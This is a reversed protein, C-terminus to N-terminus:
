NPIFSTDMGCTNSVCGPVAEPSKDVCETSSRHHTYRESMLYGSYELTWTSTCSLRAPIMIVSARTSSHCVACPVNHQFVSRLPQNCGMEYEVGHLELNMTNHIILFVSITVAGERIHLTGKHTFHTGAARGAYVLDTGTVNPCTTRGWRIYAAGGSRPGPPGQAGLNGKVGKGGNKGDRGPLGRPGPEGDRGDRGDRGQLINTCPPPTTDGNSQRKSIALSPNEAHIFFQLLDQQVNVKFCIALLSNPIM